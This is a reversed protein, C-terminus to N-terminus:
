FYAATVPMCQNNYLQLSRRVIVSSCCSVHAQLIRHFMGVGHKRIYPRVGLGGMRQGGDQQEMM